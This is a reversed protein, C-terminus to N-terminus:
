YTMLFVFIYNNILHVFDLTFSVKTRLIAMGNGLLTTGNVLWTRTRRGTLSSGGAIGVM